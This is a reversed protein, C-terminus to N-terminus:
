EQRHWVYLGIVASIVGAASTLVLIWDQNAIGSIVGVSNAIVMTTQGFGTLYDLRKVEQDAKVKAEAKEADEAREFERAKEVCRDLQEFIQRADEPLSSNSRNVKM